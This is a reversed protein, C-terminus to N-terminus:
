HGLIAQSEGLANVLGYSKINRRIFLGAEQEKDDLYYTDADFYFLAEDEAQWRQFLHVEAKSLANFGVFLIKKYAKTFHPHTVNGEVLQRYLSPYHLQKEQTLKQKFAKYLIPLRRWLKLFRQQ